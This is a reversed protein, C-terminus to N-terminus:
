VAVTSHSAIYVRRKVKLQSLANSTILLTDQVLLTFRGRQHLHYKKAM